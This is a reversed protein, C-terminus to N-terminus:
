ERNEALWGDLAAIDKKQEEVSKQVLNKLKEDNGYKVITGSLTIGDQHHKKMLTAFEHDVSPYKQPRIGNMMQQMNQNIAQGVGEKTNIPEYNKAEKQHQEVIAQLEQVEIKQKEQIKKALAKLQENKGSDLEMQAMAIGGQHHERLMMALDHDSNGSMNMVHMKQMMATMSKMMGTQNQTTDNETTDSITPNSRTGTDAQNATQSQNQCGALSVITILLINFVSNKM